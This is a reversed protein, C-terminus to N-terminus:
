EGLSRLKLFLHLIPNEGYCYYYCNVISIYNKLTEFYLFLRYSFPRKKCKFFYNSSNNKSIWRWGRSLLISWKKWKHFCLFVIYINRKMKVNSIYWVYLQFLNSVSQMKKFYIWEFDSCIDQGQMYIQLWQTFSNVIGSILTVVNKEWRYKVRHIM